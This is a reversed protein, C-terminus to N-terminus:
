FVFAINLGILKDHNQLCFCPLKQAVFICSPLLSAVSLAPDHWRDNRTSSAEDQGARAASSLRFRCHLPERSEPDALLQQVMAELALFHGPVFFIERPNLRGWKTM